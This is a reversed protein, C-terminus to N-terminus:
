EWKIKTLKDNFTELWTMDNELQKEEDSLQNILTNKDELEQELMKNLVYKYDNELENAYVLLRNHSYSILSNTIPGIIEKIYAKWQNMFWTTQLVPDQKVETTSFLHAIIGKDPIVMDEHKLKMLEDSIDTVLTLEEQSEKLAISTQYNVDHKASIYCENFKNYIEVRVREELVELEKKFDELWELTKQYLEVADELAEDYSHTKIKRSRWKYLKKEFNNILYQYRDFFLIEDKIDFEYLAKKLLGMSGDLEDIKEHVSKNTVAVKEDERKLVLHISEYINNLTIIMESIYETIPYVDFYKLVIDDDLSKIIQPHSVGLDNITREVIVNNLSNDIYFFLQQKTVDNRALLTKLEKQLVRLVDQNVYLLIPINLLNINSLEDINMISEVKIDCEELTSINQLDAHLVIYQYRDKILETNQYLFTEFDFRHNPHEEFWKLLEDIREIKQSRSELKNIHSFRVDDESVNANLFSKKLEEYELDTGSFLLDFDYGNMEDYFISPINKIWTQLKAHKHKEVLSNIRPLNGNFKIETKNLYPNYELETKIM